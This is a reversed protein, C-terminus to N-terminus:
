LPELKKFAISGRVSYGAREHLKLFTDQSSRITSSCIVKISCIRAWIEWQQLIQALLRIKTKTSLSQDIHVFRAEAIEEPAYPLYMGRQIWAYGLLRGSVDVAV